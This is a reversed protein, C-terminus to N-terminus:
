PHCMDCFFYQILQKQIRLASTVIQERQLYV